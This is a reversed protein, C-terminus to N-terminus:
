SSKAAKAQATAKPKKPMLLGYALVSCFAGAFMATMSGNYQSQFAMALYGDDLVSLNDIGIALLVEVGIQAAITAVLWVAGPFAGALLYGMMKTDGKRKRLYAFTLMGCALGIIFPSATGIMGYEELPDSSLEISTSELLGRLFMFVLLLLTAWLGAAVPLSRKPLTFAGGILASGFLVLAVALAISADVMFLLYVAVAAVLGLVTFGLAATAKQPGKVLRPAILGFAAGAFASVIIPSFLSLTLIMVGTQDLGDAMGTQRYLSYLVGALLLVAAIGLVWLTPRGPRPETSAKPPV